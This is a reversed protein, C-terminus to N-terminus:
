AQELNSEAHSQEFSQHPHYNQLEPLVTLTIILLHTWPTPREGTSWIRDCIEMLVDIM